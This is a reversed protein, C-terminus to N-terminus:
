PRSARRTVRTLPEDRPTTLGPERRNSQFPLRHRQFPHQFILSSGRSARALRSGRTDHGAPPWASRRWRRRTLDLTGRQGQDECYLPQANAKPRRARTTLASHAWNPWPASGARTGRRARSERRPERPTAAARTVRPRRRTAPPTARRRPRPSPAKPAIRPTSRPHWDTMPGGGRITDHPQRPHHRYGATSAAAPATNARTGGSPGRSVLPLAPPRASCTRRNSGRAPRRSKEFRWTARRARKRASRAISEHSAATARPDPAAFWARPRSRTAAPRPIWLASPASRAGRAGRRRRRSDRFYFTPVAGPLSPRERRPSSRTRGRRRGRARRPGM